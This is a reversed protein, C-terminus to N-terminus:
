AAFLDLPFHGYTGGRDGEGLCSVLVGAYTGEYRDLYHNQAQLNYKLYVPGAIAEPPRSGKYDYGLGQLYQALVEHARDSDPACIGLNLGEAAQALVNLATRIATAEEANAPTKAELCSYQRALDRATTFEM